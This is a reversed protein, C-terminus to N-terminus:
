IYTYSKDSARRSGGHLFLCVFLFFFFNQFDSGYSTSFSNSPFSKDHHGGASGPALDFDDENDSDFIGQARQAGMSQKAKKTSSSFSNSRFSKDHHGGASGPATLEGALFLRLGFDEGAARATERRRHTASRLSRLPKVRTGAPFYSEPVHVFRGLPSPQSFRSATRHSCPSSM